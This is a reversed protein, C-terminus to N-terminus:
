KIKVCIVKVRQNCVFNLVCYVKKKRVHTQAHTYTCLIFCDEKKNRKDRNKRDDEGTDDKTIYYYFLPLTVLSYGLSRDFYSKRKM